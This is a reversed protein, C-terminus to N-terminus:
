WTCPPNSPDEVIRGLMACRKTEENYFICTSCTRKTKKTEPKSVPPPPPVVEVEPKLIKEKELKEEEVIEVPKELSIPPQEELRLESEEVPAPLEIESPLEPPVYREVRSVPLEEVPKLEEIPKPPQIPKREELTIGEDVLIEYLEQRSPYRGELVKRDDIVIAPVNKIGYKRFTLTSIGGFLEEMTELFSPFDEPKNIHILHVKLDIKDKLPKTLERLDDLLQKSRNDRCIFLQITRL